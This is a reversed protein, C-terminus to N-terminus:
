YRVGIDTPYSTTPQQGAHAVEREARVRLRVNVMFRIYRIFEAQLRNTVLALREPDLAIANAKTVSERKLQAYILGQIIDRLLTDNESTRLSPMFDYADRLQMFNIVAALVNLDMYQLNPETELGDLARSSTGFKIGPHVIKFLHNFAKDRFSQDSKGRNRGGYNTAPRAALRSKVGSRQSVFEGADTFEIDM